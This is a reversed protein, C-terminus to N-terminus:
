PTQGVDGIGNAKEKPLIQIIMERRASGYVTFTNLKNTRTIDKLFLRM